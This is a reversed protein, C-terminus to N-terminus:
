PEVKVFFYNVDQKNIIPYDNSGALRLTTVNLTDWFERQQQAPTIDAYGFYNSCPNRSDFFSSSYYGNSIAVKFLYLGPSGVVFSSILRNYPEMRQYLFNFGENSSFQFYGLSVMPNFQINAYNLVPGSGNNVVQYPQVNAYMTYTPYILQDGKKSFFTDSIFSQMQITDYVHYSHINEIVSFPLPISDYIYDDCPKPREGCQFGPSFFVIVIFMSLLLYSKSM